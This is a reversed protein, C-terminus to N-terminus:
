KMECLTFIMALYAKLKMEYATRLCVTNDEQEHDNAEDAQISSDLISIGMGFFQLADEKADLLDAANSGVVLLIDVFLLRYRLPVFSALEMAISINKKMEEKMEFPSQDLLLKLRSTISRFVGVKIEQLELPPLEDIKMEDNLENWLITVANFCELANKPNNCSEYFDDGCKTLLKLVTAYAKGNKGATLHFIWASTAKLLSRIQIHHNAALNRCKNHLKIGQELLHSGVSPLSSSILESFSPCSVSNYASLSLEYLENLEKSGAKVHGRLVQELRSLIEELKFDASQEDIMEIM